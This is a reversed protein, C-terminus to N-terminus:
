INKLGDFVYENLVKIYTGKMGGSRSEIIGASEFKRLANVIVSRTIGASDAIKSAVILGEGEFLNSFIVKAAALESSSLTHVASDVIARKRKEETDAESESRMIELGVITTAYESVIIDEIDYRPEIRYLFITGLREGAIEVPNVIATFKYSKENEFGLLELSVNEKTSLIGLLRDNLSDDIFCGVRAPMLEGIVPVGDSASVGLVKGKGSLVLVNSSLCETLVSCIDSFVVKASSNDHLLRNIRRIKDLLRISM